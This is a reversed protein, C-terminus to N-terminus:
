SSKRSKVPRKLESGVASSTQCFCCRLLGKVDRRRGTLDFASRTGEEERWEEDLRGM